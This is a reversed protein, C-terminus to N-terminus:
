QCVETVDLQSGEYVPEVVGPVKIKGTVASNILTAKYEKLKTIQQNFFDLARDLRRFESDICDVIEAQENLPPVAVKIDGFSETYLRMFGSSGKGLGKSSLRFQTCVLPLKFLMLFYQPNAREAVDFVAYDPSVLGHRTALGFIGIAARMRNMVMQGARVVKYDVLSENPIFKDSVDDHPVLGREMRLSFLTEKGTSTRKNVECFVLKLRMAEWHAPIDGIWEVGSDRVPADSNLGRTVANQVLIQKREKLLFIQQEKVRIAKDIQATRQDLFSVIAKQETIPPVLAFANGIYEQKLNIRTFGRASMIFHDRYCQSQLLYNIFDPSSEESHIRLGKCFSNLYPAKETNKYISCKAIDDFTESSMLFLIDNTQVTNQSEIKRVFVYQFRDKVLTSGFISTYPIFQSFGEKPEKDFDDGKKGTLGPFIRGIYKLKKLKWHGPVEPVSEWDTLSYRQYTQNRVQTDSM